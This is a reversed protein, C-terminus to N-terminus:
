ANVGEITIGLINLTMEAGHRESLFESESDHDAKEHAEKELEKLRAIYDYVHDEPSKAITYGNILAALFEDFHDKAYGHIIDNCYGPFACCVIFETVEGNYRMREIEDAVDKPLVPKAPTQNANNM